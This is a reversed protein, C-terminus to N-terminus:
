RGAPDLGEIGPPVYTNNAINSNPVVGYIRLMINFPGLPVPLWDAEPVGQPLETALYVSLSGDANYQLEPTYSAVV